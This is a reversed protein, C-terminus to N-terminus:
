YGLAIATTRIYFRDEQKLSVCPLPMLQASLISFFSSPQYPYKSTPSMRANTQRSHQKNDTGLYLVKQTNEHPLINESNKGIILLITTVNRPGRGEAMRNEHTPRHQAVM